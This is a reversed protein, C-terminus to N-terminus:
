VNTTSGYMMSRDLTATSSTTCHHVPHAVILGYMSIIQVASAVKLVYFLNRCEQSLPSNPTQAPLMTLSSEFCLIMVRMARYKFTFAAFRVKNNDTTLVNGNRDKTKFFVCKGTDHYTVLINKKAVTM